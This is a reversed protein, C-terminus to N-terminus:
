GRAAVGQLFLDAVAPATDVLRYGRKGLVWSTAMQDMAGFLMKTAVKVPLDSKFHGQGVGEELVSGILAFYAAIEQSSAGRFFKQGQRLEVQVVEALDPDGELMEFHLHVLRRVKAVANPEDAIARRMSSVFVSMKERFLTILIDEKTRFYLYITGAAIGAERAIDSVRSSFYGKRAFVRVAAQIIQQPKEPDRM